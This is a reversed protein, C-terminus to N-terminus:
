ATLLEMVGDGDLDAIRYGPDGFNRDAPVYTTGDWRYFRSLYCCHAGGTYFDVIVEPEGDADLDRVLVSDRNGQGAPACSPCDDFTPDAALVQAGARSITLQVNTYEFSDEVHDYSLTASVTGSTATETTAAATPALVALGALAVLISRVRM